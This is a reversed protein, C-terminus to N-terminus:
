AAGAKIPEVVVGADETFPIAITVCFGSDNSFVFAHEDPYRHELRARTNSLGVGQNMLTLYSPAVGDGNDTIRLVLRDGDRRADIVIRGQRTHPAIGHRVANEVLPQLLFNPVLAALTEPAIRMTVQLRPGFRVQEIDVYKQLM